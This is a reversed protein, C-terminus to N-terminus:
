DVDGTVAARMVRLQTTRESAADIAEQLVVPLDAIVAEVWERCTQGREFSMWADIEDAARRAEDFSLSVARHHHPRPASNGSNGQSAILAFGGNGYSQEHHGKGVEPPATYALWGCIGSRAAIHDTHM